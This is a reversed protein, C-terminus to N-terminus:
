RGRGVPSVAAPRPSGAKRLSAARSHIKRRRSVSSSASSDPAGTSNFQYFLDIHFSRNPMPPAIDANLIHNLRWLRRWPLHLDLYGPASDASGVQVLIHAAREVNRQFLRM